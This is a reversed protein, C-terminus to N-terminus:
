RILWLEEPSQEMVWNWITILLNFLAHCLICPLLSNTYRYLYGMVVGFFGVGLLGQVGYFHVATFIIASIWVGAHVGLRNKITNYLLGRFIFEECIPALIVASILGSFLAGWGMEDWHHGETPDLPFWTDPLQYLAIDFIWTVACAALVWHMLKPVPKLLTRKVFSPKLFFVLIMALVGFLRWYADFVVSMSWLANELLVGPALMWLASSLWGSVFDSGVFVIIGLSLPWTTPLRSIRGFRGKTNSLSLTKRNRVLVFLCVIGAIIILWSVISLQANAILFAQKREDVLVALEGAGDYNESQTEMAKEALFCIMWDRPWGQIESEFNEWQEADLEEGKLLNILVETSIYEQSPLDDVVAQCSELDGSAWYLWALTALGTEGLQSKAQAHVLTKIADKQLEEKDDAAAIWKEIWSLPEAQEAIMLSVGYSNLVGYEDYEDDEVNQSFDSVRSILWLVTLLAALAIMWPYVRYYHGRTPMAPGSLDAELIPIRIPISSSPEIHEEIGDPSEHVCRNFRDIYM